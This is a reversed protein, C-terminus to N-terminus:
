VRKRFDQEQVPTTHYLFDKLGKQLVASFNVGAREAEANLWYPLTLTKKV